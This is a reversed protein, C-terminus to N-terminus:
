WPCEINMTTAVQMRFWEDSDDKQGNKDIGGLGHYTTMSFHSLCIQVHLLGAFAHSCVIFLLREVLPSFSLDSGDPGVHTVPMFFFVLAVMWCLFGLLAIFEARRRFTGRSKGGFASDPEDGDLLLLYSQAYLNFRAFAMIPYFLWHQHSVMFRAVSDFQVWKRHYTTWFKGHELGSSGNFIDSTVALLPMHQIDPDHEISNCVLHHVNHSRKWWSTGIGTLFNGIFLGLMNDFEWDHTVSNHGADHGLFAIQQWFLGLMVAGLLRLWRSGESSVTFGIASIFLLSLWVGLRIFYWPNIEFLGAELLKQRLDRHGAQFQTVKYDKVTGILFRPLLNKYVRAPHYNAFADTCDRGALNSIPLWGGPHSNVYDTIDYVNGDIAVWVSSM